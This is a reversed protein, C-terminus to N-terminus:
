HQAQYFHSVNNGASQQQYSFNNSATGQQLQLQQQQQQAPYGLMGQYQGGKAMMSSNSGSHGTSHSQLATATTHQQQQNQQQQQQQQRQYYLLHAAQNSTLPSGPVNGSGNSSQFSNRSSHEDALAKDEISKEASAQYNTSSGMYASMGGGNGNMLTSSNSAASHLGAQPMGGNNHMLSNGSSLVNQMLLSSSGSATAVDEQAMQLMNQRHQKFYLGCANCLAEGMSGRRWLPTDTTQCNSCINTETGPTRQVKVSGDDLICFPRPKNHLKQYLGCANCLLQKGNPCRRWSPTSTCGCNSCVKMPLADELSYLAQSAGHMYPATMFSPGASPGMSAANNLMHGQNHQLMKKMNMPSNPSMDKYTVNLPSSTASMNGSHPPTLFHPHNMIYYQQGQTQAQKYMMYPDMNHQGNTGEQAQAQAQAAYAARMYQAMMQQQAYMYMHPNRQATGGYAGYLNPGMGHTANDSSSFIPSSAALKKQHSYSNAAKQIDQEDGRNYNDVLMANISLPNVGNSSVGEPQTTEKYTSQGNQDGSFGNSSARDGLKGEFSGGDKDIDHRDEGEEQITSPIFGPTGQHGGFAAMGPMGNTPTQGNGLWRSALDSDASFPTQIQPLQFTDTGSAYNLQDNKPPTRNRQQQNQSSQGEDGFPSSMLDNSGTTLPSNFLDEYYSAHSTYGMHTPASYRRGNNYMGLSLYKYLGM